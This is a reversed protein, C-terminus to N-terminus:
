VSYDIEKTYEVVIYGTLDPVVAGTINLYLVNDNNNTDIDASIYLYDAVNCYPVVYKQKTNSNYLSGYVKICTNVGSVLTAGNSFPTTSDGVIVQRYLPRGDVWMGIKEETTHYKNINLYDIKKTTNNQVIVYQADNDINDSEPLESIKIEAM